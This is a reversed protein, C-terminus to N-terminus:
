QKAAASSDAVKDGVIVRAPSILEGDITYGGQAEAVVVGAEATADTGVAEHVMPDFKEGVTPVRAIGWKLRLAEWSALIKKVGDVWSIDGAASSNEQAHRLLDFVPIADRLLSRKVDRSTALFREDSMRKLNQYDARARQWGALYDAAQQQPTVLEDAPQTNGVAPIDKEEEKEEEHM